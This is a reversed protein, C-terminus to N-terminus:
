DVQVEQEDPLEDVESWDSPANTDVCKIRYGSKDILDKGDDAILRHSTTYEVDDQPKIPSYAIRGKVGEAYVYLTKDTM